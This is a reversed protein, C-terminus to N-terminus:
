KVVKKRALDRAVLSIIYMTKNDIGAKKMGEILTFPMDIHIQQSDRIKPKRGAGPRAGGRGPTKKTETGKKMRAM